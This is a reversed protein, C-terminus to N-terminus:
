AEPNTEEFGSVRPVLNLEFSSNRIHLIQSSRGAIPLHMAAEGHLMGYFNTYNGLELYGQGLMAQLLHYSTDPAEFDLSATLHYVDAHDGMSARLEAEDCCHDLQFRSSHAGSTLGILSAYHSLTEQVVVYDAQDAEAIWKLEVDMGYAVQAHFGSPDVTRDLSTYYILGGFLGLALFLSIRLSRQKTEM